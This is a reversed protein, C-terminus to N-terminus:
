TALASGACVAGSVFYLVIGLVILRMGVPHGKLSDMLKALGGVFESPGRLRDPKARREEQWCIVAGTVVLALGITMGAAGFIVGIM